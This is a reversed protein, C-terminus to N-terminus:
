EKRAQVNPIVRILGFVCLDAGIRAQLGGGTAMMNCMRDAEESAIKEVTKPFLTKIISVLM